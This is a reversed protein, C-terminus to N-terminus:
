LRRVSRKILAGSQSDFEAIRFARFCALWSPSGGLPNPNERFELFQNSFTESLYVQFHAFRVYGWNNVKIVRHEGSYQFEPVQDAYPRQSKIYVEGPCRMDLAEHPRVFNYEERWPDLAAQTQQLDKFEKGSLLEAEMTGHLREVKGQTQPHKIRGHIPLVDHEMLFREFQAFGGHYGRYTTGNDSLVSGPVGFEMFVERFSEIVGGTGPKAIEALLFRSHDDLITLPWCRGGDTLAFDGKFDTQWLENCKEREFRQVPKSKRSAEESICGNRKLIESCTRECPLGEVGQNALVKRIKKGGWAPHAVRVALVKAELEPKTKGPVTNPAHSRDTLAEGSEVRRRWEYGTRRTIGYERCLASFNGASQAKRAFEERLQEV